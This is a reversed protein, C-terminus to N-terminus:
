GGEAARTLAMASHVALLTRAGIEEPGWGRTWSRWDSPGWLCSPATVSSAGRRTSAGCRRGYGCGTRSRCPPTAREWPRSSPGSVSPRPAARPRPPRPPTPPACRSSSPGRGRRTSTGRSRACSSYPHIHPHISPHASPHTPPHIPPHISPHTSPHTSPLTSPLTPQHIPPHISPHSTPDTSRPISPDHSPPVTPVGLPYQRVQIENTSEQQQLRNMRNTTEQIIQGLVASTADDKCRFGSVDLSVVEVGRAVYFNEQGDPGTPARSEAAIDAAVKGFSSMFEGLTLQSVREIFRSRAHACVDGSTDSTAGVMLELDAVRWFFSGELVLEVNDQTRTAFEFSMYHPRLDFTRIVLDRKERRRGGSWRLEVVESYPEVFFAREDENKGYRFRLKGDDARLIMAEHDALRIKPRTEVVDQDSSPVFAGRKQVLELQGTRRDRVLAATDDDIQVAKQVREPRGAVHGDFEEHAGLFVLGEGAAVRAEGTRKDAVRIWEGVRLSLASRVGEPDLTRETAGPVVCGAEGRVVRVVGTEDDVFRVFETARLAIATEKGASDVEEYPGLRLLGPGKAVRRRGTTSDRIRVYTLTGLTAVKRKRVRCIGLANVLPLVYVRPGDVVSRDTLTSLLLQEDKGVFRVVRSVFLLAFCVLVFPKPTWILLALLPPVTPPPM